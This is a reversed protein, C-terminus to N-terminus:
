KELGQGSFIAVIAFGVIAATLGAMRLYQPPLTQMQAMMRKMNEPFLAYISGELVLMLGLALTLETM